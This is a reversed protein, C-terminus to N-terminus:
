THERTLQVSGSFGRTPPEIGDRAMQLIPLSKRGMEFNPRVHAEASLHDTASDSQLLARGSVAVNIPVSALDGALGSGPSAAPM